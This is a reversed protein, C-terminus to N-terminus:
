LELTTKSNIYSWEKKYVNNKVKWESIGHAKAAHQISKWVIEGDFVKYRKKNMSKYYNLKAEPNNHPNNKKMFDSQRKKGEEGRIRTKNSESINKRGQESVKNHNGYNPNDKGKYSRRVYGLEWGDELYTNVLAKVVMIHKGNKKIAKKGMNAKSIADKTSQDMIAVGAISKNLWKKDRHMNLRRQVKQEWILAPKATKFRRRVQIVDPLGHKAIIAHVYKSSTFYTTFLDDPRCGKAYRAGYYWLNLKSWGILYTFPTKM